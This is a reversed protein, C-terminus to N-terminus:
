AAAPEGGGKSKKMIVIIIILALLGAGVGIGIKMGTSMGTSPKQLMQNTMIRNSLAKNANKNAFVNVLSVGISGTSKIISGWDVSSSSDDSSDDSTDDGDDNFVGDARLKNIKKELATGKIKKDTISHKDIIIKTIGSIIQKNKKGIESAIIEGIKVENDKISVNFGNKRLLDVIDKKNEVILRAIEDLLQHQISFKDNVGVANFYNFAFDHDAYIMGVRDSLSAGM